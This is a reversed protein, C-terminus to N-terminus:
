PRYFSSFGSLFSKPVNDTGTKTACFNQDWQSFQYDVNMYILLSKRGIHTRHIKTRATWNVRTKRHLKARRRQILKLFQRIENKRDLKAHRRKILKLPQRIENLPVFPSYFIWSRIKAKEEGGSWRLSADVWDQGPKAEMCARVTASCIWKCRYM